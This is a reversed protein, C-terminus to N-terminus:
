DYLKTKRVKVVDFISRGPVALNFVANEYVAASSKRVKVEDFISRRPVALNFVSNENTEASSKEYKPEAKSVGDRCLWISFLTKM